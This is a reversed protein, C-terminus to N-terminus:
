LVVMAKLTSRGAMDAYASPVDDLGYSHDLV